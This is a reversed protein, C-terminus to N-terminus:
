YVAMYIEFINLSFHSTLHRLLRGCLFLMIQLIYLAYVLLMCRMCAQKSIVVNIPKLVLKKKDDCINVNIQFQMFFKTRHWPSVLM